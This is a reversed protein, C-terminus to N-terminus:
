FLLHLVEINSQLLMPLICKVHIAIKCGFLGEKFCKVINLYGVEANFTNITAAQQRNKQM